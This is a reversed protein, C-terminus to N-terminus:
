LPDAPEIRFVATYEGIARNIPELSQLRRDCAITWADQDLADRPAIRRQMFHDLGCAAVNDGFVIPAAGARGAIPVYAGISIRHSRKELLVEVVFHAGADLRGALSVLPELAFDFFPIYVSDQEVDRQLIVHRAPIIGAM